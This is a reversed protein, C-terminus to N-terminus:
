YVILAERGTGFQLQGQVVPSESYTTDCPIVCSGILTFSPVWHTDTTTVWEGQINGTLLKQEEWVRAALGFGCLRPWAVDM